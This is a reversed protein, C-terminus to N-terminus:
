GLHATSFGASSFPLAHRFPGLGQPNARRADFVGFFERADIVLAYLVAGRSKVVSVDRGFLTIQPEHRPGVAIGNQDTLDLVRHHAPRRERRVARPMAVVADRLKGDEDLAAQAAM